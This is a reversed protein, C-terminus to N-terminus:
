FLKVFESCPKKVLKKQNLGIKGSDDLQIKYINASDKEKLYFCNFDM